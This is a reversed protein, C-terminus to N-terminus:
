LEKELSIKEVEKTKKGFVDYRERQVLIYNDGIEIVLFDGVKSGVRVIYGKSFPDQLLALNGGKKKVIGVLKFPKFEEGGKFYKKYVLGFFPNRLKKLDLLYPKIKIEKKWQKLEKEAKSLLSDGYCFNFAFLNFVILFLLVRM